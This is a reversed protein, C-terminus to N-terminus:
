SASVNKIFVSDQGQRWLGLFYIVGGGGEGLIIKIESGM